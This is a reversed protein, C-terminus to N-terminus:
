WFDLNLPFHRLLANPIKFKIRKQLQWWTTGDAAGDAIISDSTWVGQLILKVVKNNKQLWIYISLSLPALIIKM